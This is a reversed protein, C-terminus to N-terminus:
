INKEQKVCQLVGSFDEVSMKKKMELLRKAVRLSATAQVSCNVWKLFKLLKILFEEEQAFVPIIKWFKVFM